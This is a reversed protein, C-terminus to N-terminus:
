HPVTLNFIRDWVAEHALADMGKIHHLADVIEAIDKLPTKNITGIDIIGDDTEVEVVITNFTRRGRALDLLGQRTEHICCPSQRPHNEHHTIRFPHAVTARVSNQAAAASQKNIPLICPKRRYNTRM